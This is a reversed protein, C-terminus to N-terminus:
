EAVLHHLYKVPLTHVRCITNWPQRSKHPRFLLLPALGTTGDISRLVFRSLWKQYNGRM